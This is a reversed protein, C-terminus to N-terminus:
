QHFASTTLLLSTPMAPRRMALANDMAPAAMASPDSGMAACVTVNEVVPANLPAHVPTLQANPPNVRDNVGTPDLLKKFPESTSRPENVVCHTVHVGPESWLMGAPTVNVSVILWVLGLAPVPANAPVTDPDSANLGDNLLRM